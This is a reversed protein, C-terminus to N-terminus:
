VCLAVTKYGPGVLPNKEIAPANNKVLDESNARGEAPLDGKPEKAM